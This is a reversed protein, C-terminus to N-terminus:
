PATLGHKIAMTALEGNGSMTDLALSWSKKLAEHSKQKPFALYASQADIVPNLPQIMSAMNMERLVKDTDRVNAALLDASGKALMRIGDKVSYVSSTLIGKDFRAGYEWGHIGVVKLGKIKSYDGSWGLHGDTARAYFVVSDRFFPQSSFALSRERDATKYPGILIDAHGAEVMALARAWPYLEFRVTDGTRQAITRAVDVGLGKYTGDPAREFVKPFETSVALLEAAKCAEAAVILSIVCALLKSRM